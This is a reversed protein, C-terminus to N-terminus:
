RMCLVSISDGQETKKSKKWLRYLLWLLFCLVAGGVTAVVIAVPKSSHGKLINTIDMTENDNFFPTESYRAFCAMDSFSGQTSPFCDTLKDYTTNMCTRCIAQNINEICQTTAYVTANESINQRTSAVYFNSTKPTADRINSLVGDVLQNFTTPQSTSQNGCLLFQLGSGDMLFYPNNYFEAFDEYRIFCDDFSIYGNAATCNILKSVGADFCDVCQDVSLYNRCQVTAYVSDGDNLTQARAYLVRKSLLQMRLDDLTTNRNKIFNPLSAVANRGCFKGILVNTDNNHDNTQSFGPETLLLVLLMVLVAM